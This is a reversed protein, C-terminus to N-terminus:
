ALDVDSPAFGESVLQDHAVLYDLYKSEADGFRRTAADVGELSFGMAVYREQIPSLESRTVPAITPYNIAAAASSLDSQVGSADLGYEPATQSPPPPLVPAVADDLAAAASLIFSPGFLSDVVAAPAVPTASIGLAGVASGLAPPPVPPPSAVAAAGGAAAVAPQPPGASLRMVETLARLDDDGSLPADWPDPPALGSDFDLVVPRAANGAASHSPKPSVPPSARPLPPSAIAASVGSVDLPAASPAAPPASRVVVTPQLIADNNGSFGPARARLDALRRENRAAALARQRDLAVASEAAAHEAVQVAFREAAFDYTIQYIPPHRLQRPFQLAFWNM